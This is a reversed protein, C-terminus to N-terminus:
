RYHLCPFNLNVAKGPKKTAATFGTPKKTTKTGCKYLKNLKALDIRSMHSRQGINVGRQRPVITARSKYKTFAYPGYHMVSNYDYPEGFTQTNSKSFKQFNFAM